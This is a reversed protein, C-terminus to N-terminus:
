RCSGELACCLLAIWAWLAVSIWLGHALSRWVAAPAVPPPPPGYLARLRAFTDADGDFHPRTTM